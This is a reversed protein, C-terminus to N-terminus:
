RAPDACIQVGINFGGAQRRLCRAVRYHRRLGAFDLSICDDPYLQQFFVFCAGTRSINRVIVDFTPVSSLNANLTEHIELRARLKCERRPFRRLDVVPAPPPLQEKPVIAETGPSSSQIKSM